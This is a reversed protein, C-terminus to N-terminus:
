SDRDAIHSPLAKIFQLAKVREQLRRFEEPHFVNVFKSSEANIIQDLEWVFEGWITLQQLERAREATM